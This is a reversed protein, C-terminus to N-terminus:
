FTLRQQNLFMNEWRIVMFILEQLWRDVGFTHNAGWWGGYQFSYTNPPNPGEPLKTLVSWSFVNIWKDPSTEPFIRSDELWTVDRSRGLERGVIYMVGDVELRFLLYIARANLMPGILSRNVVLMDKNVTKLVTMEVRCLSGGLRTATASDCRTGWVSGMVEDVDINYMKRTFHFKCGKGSSIDYTLDWGLHSTKASRKSFRFSRIVTISEMAIRICEADSPPKWWSLLDYVSADTFDYSQFVSKLTENVSIYHELQQVLQFSDTRLATLEISQSAILERLRALRLHLPRHPQTVTISQKGHGSHVLRDLTQELTTVQARMMDINSLRKLRSRKEIESKHKALLAKHHQNSEMPDEVLASDPVRKKSKKKKSPTKTTMLVDTTITLNLSIQQQQPVAAFSVGVSVTPAAKLATAIPSVVADDHTLVDALEPGSWLSFPEENRNPLTTVISQQLHRSPAFSIPEM